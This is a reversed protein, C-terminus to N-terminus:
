HKLQHLTYGPMESEFELGCESGTEWVVRAYMDGTPLVLFVEAGVEPAKEVALKAGNQSVNLVEATQRQSLSVLQTMTRLPSRQASRRGGGGRKGFTNLRRTM